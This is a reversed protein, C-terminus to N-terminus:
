VPTIVAATHRFLPSSFYVQIGGEVIRTGREVLMLASSQLVGNVFVFLKSPLSVCLWVFCCCFWVADCVMAMSPNQEILAGAAAEATKFVRNKKHQLVQLCLM